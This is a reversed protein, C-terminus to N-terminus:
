GGSGLEGGRDDGQRTASSAEHHSPHRSGCTARGQEGSREPPQMRGFRGSGGMRCRPPIDEGHRGMGGRGLFWVGVFFPGGHGIWGYGEM